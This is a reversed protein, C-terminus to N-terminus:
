VVENKMDQALQTWLHCVVMHGQNHGKPGLSPGMGLNWTQPIHTNPPIGHTGLPM